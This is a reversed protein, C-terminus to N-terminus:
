RCADCTERDKMWASASAALDDGHAANPHIPELVHVTGSLLADDDGVHGIDKNVLDGVMGDGQQEGTHTPDHRRRLLYPGPAPAALPAHDVAQGPVREAQETEAVDRPAHRLAHGAKCQALDDGVVRVHVRCDEGRVSYPRYRHDLHQLIGIEDGAM